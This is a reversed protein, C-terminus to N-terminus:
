QGVGAFVGTESPKWYEAIHAWVDMKRWLAGLVSCVGRKMGEGWEVEELRPRLREVLQDCSRCLM